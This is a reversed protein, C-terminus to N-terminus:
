FYFFRNVPAIKEDCLRGAETLVAVVTDRTAEEYRETASVQGFGTIHDLVFQIDSTPSSYTM